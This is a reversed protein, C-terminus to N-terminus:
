TVIEWTVNESEGLPLVNIDDVSEVHVVSHLAQFHEKLKSQTTFEEACASCPFKREKRHRAEHAKMSGCLAFERGCYKCRYAKENFHMRMHDALEVETTSEKDCYTCSFVQGDGGHQCIKHAELSGVFKFTMGCAECPTEKTNLIQIRHATRKHMSLSKPLSFVKGCTECDYNGHPMQFPCSMVHRSLKEESEFLKKCYKCIHGTNDVHMTLHNQLSEDNLFYRRCFKCRGGQRLHASAYHQDLNLKLSFRKPCESCAFARLGMHYSEHKKWSKRCFTTYPCSGCTYKKLNSIFRREKETLQPQHARFLHKKYFTTETFKMSCYRCARLRPNHVRDIHRQLLSASLYTGNCQPCQVGVREQHTVMHQRLNKSSKLRIGCESCLFNKEHPNHNPYQVANEHSSIHKSYTALSSTIEKGCVQCIYYVKSDRAELLIRHSDRKHKECASEEAFILSCFTCPFLNAGEHEERFHKSLSLDSAGLFSCMTCSRSTGTDAGAVNVSPAESEDKHRNKIHLMYFFQSMSMWGCYECCYVYIHDSHTRMHKELSVVLPFGKSCVSCRHRNNQCDACIGEHKDRIMSAKFDNGCNPCKVTDQVQPLHQWVHKRCLTRSEFGKECLACVYLNDQLLRRRRRKKQNPLKENGDSDEELQVSETDSVDSTIFSARIQPQEQLDDANISKQPDSSDITLEPEASVVDDNDSCIPSDDDVKKLHRASLTVTGDKPAVYQWFAEVSYETDCPKPICLPTGNSYDANIILKQKSIRRTTTSIPENNPKEFDHLREQTFNGVVLSVLGNIPVGCPFLLDTSFLETEVNIFIRVSPEVPDGIITQHVEM